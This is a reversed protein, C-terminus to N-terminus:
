HLFDRELLEMLDRFAQMLQSHRDTDDDGRSLDIPQSMAESYSHVMAKEEPRQGFARLLARVRNALVKAESITKLATEANMKGAATRKLLGCEFLRCQAPRERYIKCYKGDFCACPQAFALKRRGKKTITLGLQALRKADDGLQLEADAFLTSDCCLGCNPCLQDIPQM